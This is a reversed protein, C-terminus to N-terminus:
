RAGGFFGGYYLLWAAIATNLLSEWFSYDGKSQGHKGLALGLGLLTLVVWTIQPWHLTM